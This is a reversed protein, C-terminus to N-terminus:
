NFGTTEFLCHSPAVPNYYLTQICSSTRYKLHLTHIAKLWVQKFLFLQFLAAGSQGRGGVCAWSSLVKHDDRWPAQHLLFPLDQQQQKGQWSGSIFVAEGWAPLFSSSLPLHQTQLDVGHGREKSSISQRSHYPALLGSYYNNIYNMSQTNINQIYPDMM